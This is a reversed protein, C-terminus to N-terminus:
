KNLEIYLICSTGFTPPPHKMQMKEDIINYSLVFNASFHLFECKLVLINISIKNEIKM